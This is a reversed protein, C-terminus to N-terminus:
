EPVDGQGQECGWSVVSIYRPILFTDNIATDSIYRAPVLLMETAFEAPHCAPFQSLQLNGARAQSPSPLARQMESLINHKLQWLMIAHFYSEVEKISYAVAIVPIFLAAPRRVIVSDSCLSDAPMGSKFDPCHAALIRKRFVPESCCSSRLKMAESIHSNRALYPM